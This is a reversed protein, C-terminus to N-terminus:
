RTSRSPAGNRRSTSRGAVASRPGHVAAARSARSSCARRWTRARTPSASTHACPQELAPHLEHAPVSTECSKTGGDVAVVNIGNTEDDTYDFIGRIRWGDGPEWLLQGRVQTSDLDEVDRDHLVDERMAMTSATSSRCAHGVTHRHPRRHRSGRCCSRMTTASGSRSRARRLRRIPSATIISLAGGVVNKGLLVGQPGRIVEVRELDYFDFNYDGTRGIYVGDVFTGVSPDATPSDLRTNTIGRINLEQDLPTGARSRSPRCPQRRPRRGLVDQRRRPKEGSYASIAVPTTQLSTERRQATVVIEELGQETQPGSPRRPPCRSLIAAVAQAVPSGRRVISRTRAFSM